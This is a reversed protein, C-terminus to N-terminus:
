RQISTAAAEGKSSAAERAYGWSRPQVTLRSMHLWRTCRHTSRGAATYTDVQTLRPAPADSFARAAWWTGSRQRLRDEQQADWRWSVPVGGRAQAGPLSARAAIPPHLTSRQSRLGADPQVWVMARQVGIAGGGCWFNDALLWEAGSTPDRVTLSACVSVARARGRRLV